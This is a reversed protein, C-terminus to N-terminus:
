SVTWSSMEHALCAHPQASHVLQCSQLKVPVALAHAGDALPGALAIYQKDLPGGLTYQGAAGLDGGQRGM